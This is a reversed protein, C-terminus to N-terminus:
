ENSEIEKSIKSFLDKFLADEFERDFETKEKWSDYVASVVMFLAKTLDWVWTEKTGFIDIDQYFNSILGDEDIYEYREPYFYNHNEWNTKCGDENDNWITIPFAWVGARDDAFFVLDKDFLEYDTEFNGNFNGGEDMGDSLDDENWTRIAEKLIVDITNAVPKECIQELISVDLKDKYEKLVNLEQETIERRTRM